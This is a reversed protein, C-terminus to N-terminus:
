FFGEIITDIKDDQIRNPLIQKVIRRIVEEEHKQQILADALINKEDAHFVDGSIAASQILGNEVLLFIGTKMDKLRIENEFSYKPSYGYIWEWTDYKQRAIHHVMELDLSNFHYRVTNATDHMYQEFLFAM